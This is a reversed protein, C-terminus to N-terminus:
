SSNVEELERKEERERLVRVTIYNVTKTDKDAWCRYCKIVNRHSLLRGQGVEALVREFEEDTLGLDECGIRNWAVDM